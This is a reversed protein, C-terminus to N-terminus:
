KPITLSTSYPNGAAIPPTLYSSPASYDLTKYAQGSRLSLQDDDGTYRKPTKYLQSSALASIGNLALNIGSQENVQAAMVKQAKNQLQDKLLNDTSAFEADKNQIILQTANMLKDFKQMKLLNNQAGIGMIDTFNQHLISAFDNPDAGLVKATDLTGALSGQAQSTIYDLSTPDFGFQANSQTQNFIDFVESPTKYPKRQKFLADAQAQESKAKGSASSAQIGGIVIPALAAIAAVPM